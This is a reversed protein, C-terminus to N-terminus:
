ETHIRLHVTLNGKLTFKRGCQSCTFPKEGTHIQIHKNLDGKDIFSKGCQACMFPKEGSHIQLHKSLNGSHTYCKGCHWCIYPNEGTHIQLHMVLHRKETFRRRLAPLFTKAGTILATNQLSASKTQPIKSLDTTTFDHHSYHLHAKVDQGQSEKEEVIDLIFLIFHNIMWYICFTFFFYYKALPYYCKPPVIILCLVICQGYGSKCIAVRKTTM